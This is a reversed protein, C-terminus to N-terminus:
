EKIHAAGLAAAHLRHELVILVENSSDIRTLEASWPSTEPLHISWWRLVQELRRRQHASFKWQRTFRALLEPKVQRQSYTQAFRDIRQMLAQIVELHNTILRRVHKATLGRAPSQSNDSIIKYCQILEITSFRQATAYFGTVEMDYMSTDSYENAPRDVTILELANLPHSCLQSTQWTCRTTADTLRAAVASTGIPRDAHGAVGVNLWGADLREGTVAHLYATAAAANVKGTGSVVLSMDGHLYIPFVGPPTRAQLGLARIIPRAECELAVMLHM